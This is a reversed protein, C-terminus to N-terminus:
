ACSEGSEDGVESDVLDFDYFAVIHVLPSFVEFFAKDETAELLLWGVEQKHISLDNILSLQLVQVTDKVSSINRIQILGLVQLFYLVLAPSITDPLLNLLRRHIDELLVQHPHLRHDM